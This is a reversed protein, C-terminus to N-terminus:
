RGNGCAGGGLMYCHVDFFMWCITFQMPLSSEVIQTMWGGEEADLVGYYSGVDLPPLEGRFNQTPYFGKSLSHTPIHVKPIFIWNEGDDSRVFGKYLDKLGKDCTRLRIPKSIRELHYDFPELWRAGKPGTKM